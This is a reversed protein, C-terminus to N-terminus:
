SKVTEDLKKKKKKKKKKKSETMGNESKKSNTHNKDWVSDPNSTQLDFSKSNQKGARGDGSKDELRALRQNEQEIDAM